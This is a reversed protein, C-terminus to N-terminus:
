SDQPNEAPQLTAPLGSLQGGAPLPHVSGQMWGPTPTPPDRPIGTPTAVIVRWGRPVRQTPGVDGATVWPLEPGVREGPTGVTGEAAPRAHLILVLAAPLFPERAGPTPM